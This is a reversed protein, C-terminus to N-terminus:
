AKCHFGEVRTNGRNLIFGIISTLTEYEVFPDIMIGEAYYTIEAILRPLPVDDILPPHGLAQVQCPWCSGAQLGLTM